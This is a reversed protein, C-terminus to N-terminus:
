KYVEKYATEYKVVDQPPIYAWGQLYQKYRLAMAQKTDM